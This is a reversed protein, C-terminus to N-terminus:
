PTMTNFKYGGDFYRNDLTNGLGMLLGDIYLEGLIKRVEDIPIRKYTSKYVEEVTISDHGNKIIHKIVINLVWYRESIMKLYLREYFEREEMIIIYDSFFIRNMFRLQKFNDQLM